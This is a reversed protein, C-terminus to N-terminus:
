TELAALQLSLSIKHWERVGRFKKECGLTLVCPPPLGEVTCSLIWEKHTEECERQSM